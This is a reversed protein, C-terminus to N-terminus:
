VRCPAHQSCIIASTSRSRLNVSSGRRYACCYCSAISFRQKFLTMSGTLCTDRQDIGPILIMSRTVLLNSKYIRFPIVPLAAASCRFSRGSAHAALHINVLLDFPVKGRRKRQFPKLVTHTHYSVAECWKGRWMIEGDGSYFCLGAVLAAM